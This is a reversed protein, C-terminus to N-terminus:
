WAAYPLFACCTAVESRLIRKGYRRVPYGLRRAVAAYLVPMSVCTGGNNSALMGHISLDEPNKFDVSRIREPNYHVNFDQQLVTILMLM